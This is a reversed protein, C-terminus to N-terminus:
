IQYSYMLEKIRVSLNKIKKSFMIIYDLCLKLIIDTSVNIKIDLKLFINKNSWVCM